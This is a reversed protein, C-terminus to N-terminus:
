EGLNHDCAKLAHLIETYAFRKAWHGLVEGLQVNQESVRGIVEAIPGPDLRVVADRLEKRLNEPLMALSERSLEAVPDAVSTRPIEKYLYRVGLHRAM